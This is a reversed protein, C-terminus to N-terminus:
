LGAEAKAEAELDELASRELQGFVALMRRALALRQLATMGQLLLRLTFELGASYPLAPPLQRPAAM